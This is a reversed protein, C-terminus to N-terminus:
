VRFRGRLCPSVSCIQTLSFSSSRNPAIALHIFTSTGPGFQPELLERLLNNSRRDLDVLSESRSKELADIFLAQAPFQSKSVEFEFPLQNHRYRVFANREFALVADINQNLVCNHQLQFRNIAYQRKMFRLQERIQPEQVLWHAQNQIEVHCGHPM